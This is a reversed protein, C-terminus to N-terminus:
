EESKSGPEEIEKLAKELFLKPGDRSVLDLSNKLKFGQCSFYFILM